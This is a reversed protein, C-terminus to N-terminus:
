TKHLLFVYAIKRIDSKAKKCCFPVEGPQLPHPKSQLAPKGVTLVVAANMKEGPRKACLGRIALLNMWARSFFPGNHRQANKYFIKGAPRRGSRSVQQCFSNELKGTISPIPVPVAEPPKKTLHCPVRPPFCSLWVVCTHLPATRRSTTRSAMAAAAYHM